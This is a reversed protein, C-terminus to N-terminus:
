APREGVKGRLVISFISSFQISSNMMEPLYCTERKMIKSTFYFCINYKPSIYASHLASTIGPKWWEM